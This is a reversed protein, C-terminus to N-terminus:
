SYAKGQTVTRATLLQGWGIVHARRVPVTLRPRAPLPTSASVTENTHSQPRGGASAMCPQAFGLTVHTPSLHWLIGPSNYHKGSILIPPKCTKICCVNRCKFYYSSRLTDTKHSWWQLSEGISSRSLLSREKSLSTVPKRCCNESDDQLPLFFQSTRTNPSTKGSSIHKTIILLSFFCSM